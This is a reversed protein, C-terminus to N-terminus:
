TQPILKCHCHRCVQADKRVLERCDPCRVHTDPTPEGPARARSPMAAIAILAFIGLVLGLLFWGGAFRGKSSAVVWCLVACGIWVLLVIEM